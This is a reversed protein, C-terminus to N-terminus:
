AIREFVTYQRLRNNRGCSVGITAVEIANKPCHPWVYDLIGVKAGVHVANIANKVLLNASPLKDRGPFYHDADVETYPRDIMAGDWLENTHYNRETTGDAYQQLDPSDAYGPNVLYPLPLRADRLYDPQCAPDLDLTRDWKGLGRYPYNRIMGGCVHLIRDKTSAIFARGRHLFGAPYAGYYKHKPRGLIWFDCIPRYSM